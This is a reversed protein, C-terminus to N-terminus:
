VLSKYMKLIEEWVDHREFYKKVRPRSNKSLYLRLSKNIYLREMAKFLADSDKKPIIIGSEMNVVADSVGNVNSVISPLGMSMAELLVNPFGERYSPLVFVDSACLYPRIDTQRGHEIISPNNEIKDLTERHLADLSEERAGLLHLKTNPYLKNLRNFAEVLENVGKDGVLRGVFVFSIGNFNNRITEASKNIISDDPNFFSTDVGNGSGYHIVKLEKDTIHEARLLNAVGNSQPIVKNACRCALKEMMILLRRFNGSTTEFRLGNVNYIRYPVGCVRAALLGLLAGKPTNAHVIDPKEKHFLRILSFLSKIDNLISIERTMDVNRYQVGESEALEKLNGNDSAVLIVDMEKALFKIQGRLLDLTKSHATMRILKM